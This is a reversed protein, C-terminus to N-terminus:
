SSRKWSNHPLEVTRAAAAVAILLADRDLPICYAPKAREFRWSEALSGTAVVDFGIREHFDSVIALADADDGAIPLARRRDPLGFPAVL